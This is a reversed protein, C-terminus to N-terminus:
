AGCTCGNCTCQPTPKLEILEDWLMKLKTYYNALSLNGQSLSTISRQLQYLLPGNCSGYRQELDLWLNRSTKAYTYAQVIDKSISNLIWTTVMSDVLIMGPHNSGHLQLIEPLIRREAGQREGAIASNEAMSVGEQTTVQTILSSSWTHLSWTAAAVVVPNGGCCGGGDSSGRGGEDEEKRRGRRREKKKGEEGEEKRRAGAEEEGDDGGGGDAGSGGGRGEKKRGEVGDGGGGDRRM